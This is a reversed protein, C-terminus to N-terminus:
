SSTELAVLPHKYFLNVVGTVQCVQVCGIEKCPSTPAHCDASQLKYYDQNVLMHTTTLVFSDPACTYHIRLYIYIYISMNTFSTWHSWAHIYTNVTTGFVTHIFIFDYM